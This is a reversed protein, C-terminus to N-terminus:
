DPRPRLSLGRRLNTTTGWGAIGRLAIARSGPAPREESRRAPRRPRTAPPAGCASTPAGTGPGTHATGTPASTSDDLGAQTFQHLAVVSDVPVCAQADVVQPVRGDREPDRGPCGRLLDRRPGTVTRHGRHEVAVPMPQGALLVAHGVDEAGHERGVCGRRRRGDESHDAVSSHPQHPTPASEANWAQGRFRRFGQLQLPKTLPRVCVRVTSRQRTFGIRPTRPRVGTSSRPGLDRCNGPSPEQDSDASVVAFPRSRRIVCHFRAISVDTAPSSLPPRESGCADDGPAIRVDTGSYPTGISIAALILELPCTVTGFATRSASPSPSPSSTTNRTSPSRATSARVGSNRESAAGDGDGSGLAVDGPVLDDARRAGAPGCRGPSRTRRCSCGRGAGSPRGQPCPPM